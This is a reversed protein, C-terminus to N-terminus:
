TLARSGLWLLVGTANIGNGSFSFDFGDAIAAPAVAVAAALGLLAFYGIKM